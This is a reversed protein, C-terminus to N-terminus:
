LNSVNIFLRKRRVMHLIEFNMKELRRKIKYNIKKEGDKIFIKLHFVGSRIECNIDIKKSEGYIREVLKEIVRHELEYGEYLHYVKKIRRKFKVRPKNIGCICKESILKCIDGSKYRILPIRKNRLITIVLEGWKNDPLINGEEDVVELKIKNLDYHFGNHEKCEVGLVCETLGYSDFVEGKFCNELEQRKKNNLYEGTTEIFDFNIGKLFDKLYFLVSPISSVINPKMTELIERIKNPPLDTDIPVVQNGYKVHGLMTFYGVGWFSQDMLVVTLSGKKINEVECFWKIYNSINKIDGEDHYIARPKSTTGSTFYVCYSEHSFNTQSSIKDIDGKTMFPVKEWRDIIQDQYKPLFHNLRKIAPLIRRFDNDKM